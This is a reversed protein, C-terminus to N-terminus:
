QAQVEQLELEPHPDTVYCFGEPILSTTPNFKSTCPGFYPCYPCTDRSVTRYWRGTRQAERITQQIEWCEALCENVDQDLRPIEVRAFYFDPRITIDAILKDRWEDPTMPVTQLVYGSASDGTQRPENNKKLVRNGDRDLVIKLGNDDLLPVQEPRITPKRVVDYLVTAVDHGLQRAGHVYLSIQHDLQLRRWYDSDPMLDDSSTKHEGVALRRDELRVIGDIKGALDFLPSAANTEPNRCPVVFAAESALIELKSAEWRWEYGALLGVLTEREISWAYTDEIRAPPTAYRDRILQVADDFSRGQKLADLALHWNTGMRLAKADEERRLKIEYEFWHRRRCFKFSQM